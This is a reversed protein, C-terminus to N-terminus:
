LVDNRLKDTYIPHLERLCESETGHKMRILVIVTFYIHLDSVCIRDM